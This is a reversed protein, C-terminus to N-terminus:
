IVLSQHPPPLDLKAEIKDLRQEVIETKETLDQIECELNLIKDMITRQKNSNDELKYKLSTVKRELNYHDSSTCYARTPTVMRPIMFQANRVIRLM